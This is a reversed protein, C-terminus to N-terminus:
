SKAILYGGMGTMLGGSLWRAPKAIRFKGTFRALRSAALAYALKVSGVSLITISVVILMDAMNLVSLNVFSPLLSAYFFIAKIDGLTILLGSAFSTMLGGSIITNKSSVPRNAKLMLSLGFGILYIGAIIKIIVFFGGMWASLAVMGVAALTLFVLDGLVIGAVVATGNSLGATASRMVVLAVSSSPLLALVSMVLFLATIDFFSM